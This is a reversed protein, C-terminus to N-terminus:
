WAGLTRGDALRAGVFFGARSGDLMPNFKIEIVDGANFSSPRWGKRFLSNPGGGEISWEEQEGSENEIYVQIWVHPNTWQFERVIASEQRVLSKDFMASSHHAMAPGSAPVFGIVSVAVVITIAIRCRSLISRM